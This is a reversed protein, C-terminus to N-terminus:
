RAPVETPHDPESRRRSLSLFLALSGASCALLLPNQRLGGILRGGGAVVFRSEGAIDADTPRWPDIAPNNDGKLEYGTAGNGGVIRHIVHRGAVQFAVVDGVDYTARDHTVVLDGGQLAPLMSTGSVIVYTAPGGLGTPRFLLLWGVVAVVAAVRVANRLAPNM